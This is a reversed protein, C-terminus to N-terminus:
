RKMPYVTKKHHRKLMRGNLMYYSVTLLITTGGIAQFMTIKERFFVYALLSYCFIPGIEFPILIFRNKRVFLM